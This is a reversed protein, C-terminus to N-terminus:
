NSWFSLGMGLVQVEKLMRFRHSQNLILTQRTCWYWWLCWGNLCPFTLVLSFKCVPGALFVEILDQRRCRYYILSPSDFKRNIGINAGKNKKIKQPIWDINLKRVLTWLPPKLLHFMKFTMSVESMVFFIYQLNTNSLIQSYTEIVIRDFHIKNTNITNVIGNNDGKHSSLLM